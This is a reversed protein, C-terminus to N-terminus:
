KGDIGLRVYFVDDLGDTHVDILWVDYDEEVRGICLALDALYNAWDGKGNLGGCLKVMITGNEDVESGLVFIKSADKKLPRLMTNVDKEIVKAKELTQTLNTM